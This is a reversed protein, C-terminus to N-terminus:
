HFSWRGEPITTTFNGARIGAKDDRFPDLPYNEIPQSHNFEGWDCRPCAGDVMPDKCTPCDVDSWVNDKVVNPFHDPQTALGSDPDEGWDSDARKMRYMLGGAGRWLRVLTEHPGGAGYVRFRELLDKNKVTLQSNKTLIRSVVLYAHENYDEGPSWLDECRGCVCWPAPNFRVSGEHEMDEFETIPPTEGAIFRNALDVMQYQPSNPWEREAAVARLNQLAQEHAQDHQEHQLWYAENQQRFLQAQEQHQPGGYIDNGEEDYGTPPQVNPPTPAPHEQLWQAYEPTRRIAGEDVMHSRVENLTDPDNLHHQFEDLGGGYKGWHYLYRARMRNNNVARVRQEDTMDPTVRSGSNLYSRTLAPWDTTVGPDPLGYDGPHYYVVHQAEPNFLEDMSSFHRQRLEWEPRRGEPISNFFERIYPHYRDAPPRNQKGQIQVVRGNFPSPIFDRLDDRLPINIQGQGNCQPCRGRRNAERCNECLWYDREDGPYPILDHSGCVHCVPPAGQPARGTGHCTPCEEYSGERAQQYEDPSLNERTKPNYFTGPKVEMDVKPRGARDRLSYIQTSMEKLPGSYGAICNQMTEGERRAEGSRLPVAHMTGDRSRFVANRISERQQRWTEYDRTRRMFENWDANHINFGHRTPNQSNTNHLWDGIRDVDTRRLREWASPADRRLVGEIEEPTYGANQYTQRLEEVEDHLLSPDRARYFKSVGPLHTPDHRLRGKTYETALWPFLDDTNDNHFEKELRNLFDSNREYDPHNPDGFEPRNYSEFQPNGQEDFYPLGREDRRLRGGRLYDYLKDATFTWAVHEM